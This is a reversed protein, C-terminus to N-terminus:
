CCGGGWGKGATGKQREKELMEEEEAVSNWTPSMGNLVVSDRERKIREQEIVDRRAIIAGILEGFLSEIGRSDKASVEFLKMDKELGWEREEPEAVEDERLEAWGSKKKFNSGFSGPQLSRADVPDEHATPLGALNPRTLLSAASRAIPRASPRSRVPSTPSRSLAPSSIRPQALAASNSRTLGAYPSADGSGPSSPFPVLSASSTFLTPFSFNSPQQMQAIPSPPRPPPFWTHLSHRARDQTVARHRALDAKSGVIYIILDETCNKKLEELWGRVDDFTKSDTIDYVVIAAHANRYYMPAISRFREAGATDWIQLRVKFNDVVVKKTLFLAGTTSTTSTPTFKNETYRHVLSTKGVGPVCFILSSAPPAPARAPRRRAQTAWSSSKPM